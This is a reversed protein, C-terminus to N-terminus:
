LVTGHHAHLVREGAIISLGNLGVFALLRELVRLSLVLDDRAKFLLQHSHLDAAFLANFDFGLIGVTGDVRLRYLFKGFLLYRWLPLLNASDQGGSARLSLGYRDLDFLHFFLGDHEVHIVGHRSFCEDEIDLDQLNFGCLGRLRRLGGLRRLGCLRFLKERSSPTVSISNSSKAARRRFECPMTKKVPAPM